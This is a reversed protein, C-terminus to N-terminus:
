VNKFWRFGKKFFSIYPIEGFMFKEIEDSKKYKQVQFRKRLTKPLHTVNWLVGKYIIASLAFNGTILLKLSLFIQSVLFLPVMLTLFKLSANKLLNSLNNKSGEYYIRHKTAESLTGGRFHIGSAEPYFLFKYGALQIRWSLDIDEGYILYDEDFGGVKNFIKKSIVLGATKAGFIYTEKEYNDPNEGAGVEYPLGFISMFVGASDLTGDVLILKLLIGGIEKAKAMRKVISIIASPRLITDADLFLILGSRAKKVGFNRRATPGKNEKFLFIQVNNRKSYRKLETVTNDTSGDDVVVIEFNISKTRLVSDLCKKIYKESNYTTVIVSILTKM